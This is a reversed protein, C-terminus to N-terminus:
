VVEQQNSANLEKPYTQNEDDPYRIGERQVYSKVFLMWGATLWRHLELM